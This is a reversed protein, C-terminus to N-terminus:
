KKNKHFYKIQNSLDHDLYGHWQVVTNKLSNLNIQMTAEDKYNFPLSLVFGYNMYRKLLSLREEYSLINCFVFCSRPDGIERNKNTEDINFIMQDNSRYVAFLVSDFHFDVYEKCQEPDWVIRWRRNDIKRQFISRMLRLHGKSLGSKECFSDFDLEVRDEGNKYHTEIESFLGDAAFLPIRCGKHNVNDEYKEEIKYFIGCNDFFVKLCDKNGRKISIVDRIEGYEVDFGYNIYRLIISNLYKKLNRDLHIKTILEDDSYQIYRFLLYDDQIKFFDILNNDIDFRVIKNGLEDIDCVFHEEDIRKQLNAFFMDNSGDESTLHQYSEVYEQYREDPLGCFDTKDYVLNTYSKGQNKMDILVNILYEVNEM